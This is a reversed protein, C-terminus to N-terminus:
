KKIVDGVNGDFFDDKCYTSLSENLTLYIEVLIRYFNAYETSQLTLTACIRM